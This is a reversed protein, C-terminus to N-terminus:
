CGSRTAPGAACHARQSRDSVAQTRRRVRANQVHIVVKRHTDVRCHREVEVASAFCLRVEGAVTEEILDRERKKEKKREKEKLFIM